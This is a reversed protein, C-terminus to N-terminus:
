AVLRSATIDFPELLFCVDPDTRAIRVATGDLGVSVVGFPAERARRLLRTALITTAEVIGDPVTAWGFQATVKVSRPACPDFVGGVGTAKIRTYPKGDANANLPKLVFDRNVTWSQPFSTGGATDTALSTLVTIDDTLVLDRSTPTYYRVQQADADLWFRRGCAEDIGHSAALLAATIDADAFTEGTLSLTAKLITSSVYPTYAV